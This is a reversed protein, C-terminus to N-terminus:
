NGSSIPVIAASPNPLSEPAYRRQLPRWAAAARQLGCAAMLALRAEDPLAV